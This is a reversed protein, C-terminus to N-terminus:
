CQLTWRIPATISFSPTATPASVWLPMRRRTDHRAARAMSRGPGRPWSTEVAKVARDAAVWAMVKSHTFHRRPGRVEWIGEDPERWHEEVFDMLVRAVNWADEGPDVRLAPRRSLRRPNRWLRRAPVSRPGCQRHAGSPQQRLRTALASRVREAPARGPIGYMIQIQGPQGAIARLLWAGWATAEETYGSSLLAYLTFTADRLWCYRYDWNRVSGIWEPLSTTPAAVIGGTPSLNAGQAHDAISDIQARWHGGDPMALPGNM